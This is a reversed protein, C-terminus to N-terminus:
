DVDDSDRRIKDITDDIIANVQQQMVVQEATWKAVLLDMVDNLTKRTHALRKILTIQNISLIIVAISTLLQWMM